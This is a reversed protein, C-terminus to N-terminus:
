GNDNGRHKDAWEKIEPCNFRGVCVKEDCMPCCVWYAAKVYEDVIYEAM